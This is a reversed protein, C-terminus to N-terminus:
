VTKMNIKPCNKPLGLVPRLYTWIHHTRKRAEAMSFQKNHIFTCALNGHLTALKLDGVVAKDEM